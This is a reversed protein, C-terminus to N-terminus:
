FVRCFGILSFLSSLQGGTHSPLWFPFPLSQGPMMCRSFLFPVCFLFVTTLSSQSERLWIAGRSEEKKKKKRRELRVSVINTVWNHGIRQSGHVIVWWAITWPIGWALISSDAAMGKELLDEWGLFQVQMEQIAPLNKVTQAVVFDEIQCFTYWNLWSPCMLLYENTEWTPLASFTSTKSVYGGPMKLKM